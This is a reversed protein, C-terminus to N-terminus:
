TNSQRTNEKIMEELKDLRKELWLYLFSVGYVTAFVIVASSAAADNGLLLTLEFAGFAFVFASILCIVVTMHNELNESKQSEEKLHVGELSNIQYTQITSLVNGESELGAKM